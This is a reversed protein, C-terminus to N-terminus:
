RCAEMNSKINGGHDFSSLVGSLQRVINVYFLLQCFELKMNIQKDHIIRWEGKM